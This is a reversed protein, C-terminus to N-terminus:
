CRNAPNSRAGQYTRASFEYEFAKVGSKTTTLSDGVPDLFLSRCLLGLFIRISKNGEIFPKYLEGNTGNIINCKGKWIDMIQKGRWTAVDAFKDVTSGVGTYIESKDVTENQVFALGYINGPPGPLNAQFGFRTTLDLISQLLQIKRGQLITRPTTRVILREKFSDLLVNVSNFVIPESIRQFPLRDIVLLRVMKQISPVIPNLLWM